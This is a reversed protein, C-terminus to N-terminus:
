PAGAQVRLTADAPQRYRILRAPVGGCISNPPLDRTVVAGAGVVCGEGITVGATVVVNAGLWVGDGIRIPADQGPQDQVPTGLATGHNSAVICVGPGLLVDEGITISGLPAAWICCLHNIFSRDGIRINKPYKFFATPSVKVNRGMRVSALRIFNGGTVFSLLYAWGRICFYIARLVSV